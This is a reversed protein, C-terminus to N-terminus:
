KEVELPSVDARMAKVEWSFAQTSLPNDSIVVFAGNMVQKGQQRQVALRDFGDVNTLMVTRGQKNTLAEFYQPLHIVAQGNSLQGEGRYYVAAEPGEIAAHALQKGPRTPHNIVFKKAGRAVINGEARINGQVHLRETPQNFDDGIAVYGNSQIVMREINERWANNNVSPGATTFHLSAPSKEKTAVSQNRAHIGAIDGTWEGESKGPEKIFAKFIIKGICAGPETAELPGYNTRGNDPGARGLQIDPSDARGMLALVRMQMLPQGEGQMKGLGASKHLSFLFDSVWSLREGNTANDYLSPHLMSPENTLPVNPSYTITGGAVLSGEPTIMFRKVLKNDKNRTYFSLAGNPEAKIRQELSDQNITQTPKATNAHRQANAFYHAFDPEPAPEGGGNKWGPDATFDQMKGDYQLDDLYLTLPDSSAQTQLLGFRDFTAAKAKHDAARAPLNAIFPKEGDLAFQIAGNGDNAQGDYTLTWTHRTGDRPIRVGTPKAVSGNLGYIYVEDDPADDAPVWFGICTPFRWGELKSDFWGIFVATKSASQKPLCISGSAKLRDKLSKSAIEDAYYVPRPSSSISGGIEGTQKGALNTKSWGFQGAVPAQPDAVGLAPFVILLLLIHIMLSKGFPM